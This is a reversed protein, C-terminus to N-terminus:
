TGLRKLILDARDSCAPCYTRGKRDTDSLRESYFMVCEPHGDHHALGLTHGLEHVAEKECRDLFRKHRRATTRALLRRPTRASPPRGRLRALSIVAARGEIQAYGFVSRLEGEYLDAETVGLVRDGPEALCVDFLRTARYQGRTRELGDAPLPAVSATDVEGFEQLRDALRALVGRDVPGIPKLTLRM